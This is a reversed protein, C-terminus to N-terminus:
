KCEGCIAPHLMKQGAKIGRARAQGARLEVVYSVPHLSSILKHSFPEAHEYIYVIKGQKDAFIMDLPLPTNDMWMTVVREEPAFVFMMARNEPFQRRYMLGRAKEDDSRAIEAAFIQRGKNTAVILPAKDVPLAMPTNNDASSGSVMNGQALARGAFAPMLWLLSLFIVYVPRTLM